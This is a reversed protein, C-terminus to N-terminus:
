LGQGLDLRTDRSTGFAVLDQTALLHLPISALVGQGKGITKCNMNSRTVDKLM